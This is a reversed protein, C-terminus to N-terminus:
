DIQVTTGVTVFTSLKAADWNALRICGHSAARGITEPNNTGHLGIGSKSLGMWMVGVPSRPGPPLLVFNASRVGQNLMMEDYRFYPMRSMNAIKWTGKPAPLTESGPTIPFSALVRGDELVDLMKQTTDVKVVRPKFEPRPLFAHGQRALGQVDFPESINPVKIVDGVKLADLNKEPNLKRIFARESHFREAVMSLLSTYPMSHQKGQAARDDAMVGVQARDEPTIKYLAFPVVTQLEPLRNYLSANLSLTGLEHAKAFHSLAKETFEGRRGDIKGPGFDENDLYVQLQTIDAASTFPAEPEKKEPSLLPATVVNGYRHLPTPITCSSFQSAAALVTLSTLSWRRLLHLKM